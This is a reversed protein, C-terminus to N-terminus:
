FKLVMAFVMLLFIETFAEDDFVKPFGRGPSLVRPISGAIHKYAISSPSLVSSASYASIRKM